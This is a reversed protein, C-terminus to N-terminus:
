FTYRVRYKFLTSTLDLIPTSVSRLNGRWHYSSKTVQVFNHNLCETFLDREWSSLEGNTVKRQREAVVLTVSEPLLSIGEIQSKWRDVRLFLKALAPPVNNSTKRFYEKRYRYTARRQMYRILPQHEENLTHPDIWMNGHSFSNVESEM